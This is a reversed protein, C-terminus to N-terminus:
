HAGTWTWASSAASLALPLQPTTSARSHIVNRRSIANDGTGALFVTVVVLDARVDDARGSIVLCLTAAGRAARAAFSQACCRHSHVIGVCHVNAICLQQCAALTAVGARPCATAAVCRAMLNFGPQCTGFARRTSTADHHTAEHKAPAQTSTKSEKRWYDPAPHKDPPYKTPAATCVKNALDETAAARHWSANKDAEDQGHAVVHPAGAPLTDRRLYAAGCLFRVDGDQLEVRHSCPTQLAQRWPVTVCCGGACMASPHAWPVGGQLHLTRLITPLSTEQMTSRFHSALLVFAHLAIGPVYYGDLWQHTCHTLGLRAATRGCHRASDSWWNPGHVERLQELSEVMGDRRGFSNPAAGRGESGWLARRDLSALFHPHLYFDSHAVLLDFRAHDGDLVSHGTLENVAESVPTPWARGLEAAICACPRGLRRRLQDRRCHCRCTRLAYSQEARTKEDIADGPPLLFALRVPTSVRAELCGYMEILKAIRESHPTHLLLLLTRHGRTANAHNHRGGYMRSLLSRTVNYSHASGIPGTRCQWGMYGEECICQNFSCVGHGSCAADLEKATPM